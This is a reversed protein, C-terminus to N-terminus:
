GKLNTLKDVDIHTFVENIRYVFIGLIVVFVFIDFFVAIEMLFPMGGCLAAASLFIGNEMLLLGVIQAIAKRRTIMIFLGALTVALSVAFSIVVTKDSVGVIHQAFVYALATLIIVSLMSLAPNILLGLDENAQIKNTVWRLFMPIAIVKLALILGALVFMEPKHSRFAILLVCCFLFFSQLGFGTILAPIRKAIVMFFAMM